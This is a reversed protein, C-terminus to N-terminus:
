CESISTLVGEDRFLFHCTEEKHLLLDDVGFYDTGVSFLPKGEKRLSEAMIMM